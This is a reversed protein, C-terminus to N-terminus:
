NMGQPQNGNSGADASVTANGSPANQQIVTVQVPASSDSGAATVLGWIWAGIMMPVGIIAGIMTFTFLVGIWYIIIQAVGQGVKGIVLSGVGPLFINLIIALGKM